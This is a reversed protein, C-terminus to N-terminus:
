SCGTARDSLCQTLCVGQLNVNRALGSNGRPVVCTDQVKQAASVLSDEVLGDVVASWSVCCQAGDSTLCVSRPSDGLINGGFNILSQILAQCAGAVPVHSGSCTVDNAGCQRKAITSNTSEFGPAEGWVTLTAGDPLAVTNTIVLGFEDSAPAAGANSVVLLVASLFAAKNFFMATLSM